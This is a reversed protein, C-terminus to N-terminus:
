ATAKDQAEAKLDRLLRDLAKQYSDHHSLKRKGFTFDPCRPGEGFCLAQPKLALLGAISQRRM